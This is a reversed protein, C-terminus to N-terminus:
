APRWEVVVTLDEGAVTSGVQDIDVTLYEGEAISTVDPITEAGVGDVDGAPVTPRNAQTTFITTGNKNVDVILDAGTPSTGVALQVSIIEAALTFPLKFSGTGTSLTGPQSFHATNSQAVGPSVEGDSLNGHEITGTGANNFDGTGYIATPRLDNHIVANNDCTAASINIGYRTDHAGSSPIGKNGKITNQNSDGELFINDYTNTIGSGAGHVLNDTLINDSADTLVIGHQVPDFINNDNVNCLSAGDLHISISGPNEMANNAILTRDAATYIDPGNGTSDFTNGVISAQLSFEDLSIAGNQGLGSSLFSNGVIQVLQISELQIAWDLNSDFTNNTITILASGSGAGVVHIAKECSQFLTSTVTLYDGDGVDTVLGDGSGQIWCGHVLLSGGGTKQIGNGVSRSWISCREIVCLSGAINIANGSTLDTNEIYLDSIRTSGSAVILATTSSGIIESAAVGLGRLATQNSITIPGTTTYRGEALWVEGGEVTTIDLAAQITEEDNFGSCIFDAKAKSTESSNSAAVVVTPTGKGGGGFTGGGKDRVPNEFRRWLRWLLSYAAAEGSLVRSGTVLYRTPFSNTYSFSQVRKSTKELGPPLQMPITDGPKFHTGPRPLTAHEVMQFHVANRNAAEYTLLGNARATLSEDSHLSTDKVHKELPGIDAVSAADEAEVYRGEPGEVIVKNFAPTRTLSDGGTISVNPYIGVSPTNDLGGPGYWVLDHTLSGVPTDKPQLDWEYELDVGKDWFQGYSEGFFATVSEDRPWAVSGSDLADTVTSHDIWDFESTKLGMLVNVIEGWTSIPAGPKLEADDVYFPLPNHDIIQAFRFVMESVPTGDALETVFDLTVETWTDPALNEINQWAILNEYRDRMVLRFEETDDSSRFWIAAQHRTSPQVRVLQQIGSFQTLGNIRGAFDGTRVPESGETLRYGDSAYSGHNDITSSEDAHQSRTWSSSPEILGTNTRELSEENDDTGTLSPTWTLLGLGDREPSIPNHFEITFGDGHANVLVDTVGALDEIRNELNSEGSDFPISPTSNGDLHLVFDGGTAGDLDIEYKENQKNANEFGPDSLINEGGWIHDPNKSPNTPSDFAPVVQSDFAKAKLKPGSITVKREDDHVRAPRECVWEDIVTRTGDPLCDLVRILSSTTDSVIETLDRGAEDLKDLLVTVSGEGSSTLLEVTGKGSGEEVPLWFFKKKFGNTDWPLTYVEYLLGM